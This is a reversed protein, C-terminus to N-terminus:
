APPNVACGFRGVLPADSLDSVWRSLLKESAAFWGPPLPFLRRREEGSTFLLWGEALEPAPLCKRRRETLEDRIARVEWERDREDRFVRVLPQSMRVATHSSAGDRRPHPTLM